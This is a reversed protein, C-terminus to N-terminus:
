TSQEYSPIIRITSESLRPGRRNYPFVQAWLAVNGTLTTALFYGNVDTWASTDTWEVQTGILYPNGSSNTYKKWTTIIKRAYGAVSIEQIDSPLTLDKTLYTNKMLGVYLGNTVTGIYNQISDIAYNQGNSFIVSNSM